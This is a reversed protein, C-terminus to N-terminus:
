GLLNLFSEAPHSFGPFVADLNHNGLQVHIAEGLVQRFDTTLALDRGQHLQAPELGPWRGYVKGGRVRGGMILMAGAHGHDTGGDQNERASRGFESMTIVVTDEALDGLDTWFATLSLSFERLLNALRGETGGQNAHHDWGGIEVFAVELGVNAKILRALQRLSDGFNGRAYNAGPAPAYRDFKAAQLLKKSESNESYTEKLRTNAWRLYKSELTSSIQATNLGPNSGVINNNSVTMAPESGCLIRPLSANLAVARFPSDARRRVPRLARNLWGDKTTSDGPTGSELFDQAEFHSRTPHPSGAAHVIALHRAAWLPQFAALAPHLGFFGDLDLVKARPINITPRMAYYSPEGHPVVINLGDAGGRQFIVVLRKPRNQPKEASIAANLLSPLAAGAAAALAGHRIFVRRTVPM